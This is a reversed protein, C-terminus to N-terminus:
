KRQNVCLVCLCLSIVLFINLWKAQPLADVHFQDRGLTMAVHDCDSPIQIPIQIFGVSIKIKPQIM